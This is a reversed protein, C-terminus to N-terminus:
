CHIADAFATDALGEVVLLSSGRSDICMTLKM